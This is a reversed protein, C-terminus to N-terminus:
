YNFVYKPAIICFTCRKNLRQENKTKYYLILKIFSRNLFINNTKYINANPLVSIKLYMKIAILYSKLFLSSCVWQGVYIHIVIM